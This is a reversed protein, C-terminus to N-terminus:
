LQFTVCVIISIWSLFTWNKLLIADSRGRAEKQDKQDKKAKNPKPIVEMVMQGKVTGFRDSFECTQLPVYDMNLKCLYTIDLIIQANNQM